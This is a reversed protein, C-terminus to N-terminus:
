LAFRGAAFLAAPNNKNLVIPRVTAAQRAALRVIQAAFLIYHPRWRSLNGFYHIGFSM